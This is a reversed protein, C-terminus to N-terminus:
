PQSQAALVANVCARAVVVTAAACVSSPDTEIEATSLTFLTDGDHLTHAPRIAMALGDHAAVCVRSAQGHTLRANTAVIGISTNAGAVAGFDGGLMADLALVPKGDKTGCGVVENTWPDVVDGVANVAVMAAVVAGSPLKISASGIGGKAPIGRAAKGVTAGTGAGVTGQRLDAEGDLANICAERGMVSGPRIDARGVALDFLVAGAVIPVKAVGVNLGIGRGELESMVGGAADLGFASGGSLLVAHIKEVLNGPRFIDTERTGPAGGRVDAGGVAGNPAVVVTCGTRAEFNQAHGVFLGPVDLLHGPYRM